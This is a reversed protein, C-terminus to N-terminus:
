SIVSSHKAHSDYWGPIPKHLLVKLVKGFVKGIFYKRATGYDGFLRYQLFIFRYKNLIQKYDKWKGPLDTGFLGSSGEQFRYGVYCGEKSPDPEIQTSINEQQIVKFKTYGLQMFLKFEDM